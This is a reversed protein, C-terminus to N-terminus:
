LPQVELTILETLPAGLSQFAQLSLRSGASREASIPILTVTVSKGSVPYVVRGQGAADVLPTELWLGPQSPDGLGAVPQTTTGTDAPPAQPPQGPEPAAAEPAQPTAVPDPVSDSVPDAVPDARNFLGDSVRQTVGCSALVLILPFALYRM